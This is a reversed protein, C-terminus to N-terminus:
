KKANCQTLAEIAATLGALDIIGTEKAFGAYIAPYEYSTISLELKKGDFSILNGGDPPSDTWFKEGQQRYQTKVKGSHVTSWSFNPRNSNEFITLFPSGRYFVAYVGLPVPHPRGIASKIARCDVGAETEIRWIRWGNIQSVLRFYFGAGVEREKGVIWIESAKSATQSVGLSLIGLLVALKKFM